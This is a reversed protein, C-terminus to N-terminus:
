IMSVDQIMSASSERISKGEEEEEQQRQAEKILEPDCISIKFGITSGPFRTGTLELTVPQAVKGVYTGLDFKVKGIRHQRTDQSEADVNINFAKNAAEENKGIFFTSL